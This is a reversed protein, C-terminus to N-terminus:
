RWRWFLFPGREPGPQGIMEGTLECGPGEGDPGVRWWRGMMIMGGPILIGEYAYAYTIDSWDLTGPARFNDEMREIMRPRHVDLFISKRAAPLDGDDDSEDPEPWPANDQISALMNALIGLNMDEEEEPTFLANGAPSNVDTELLM